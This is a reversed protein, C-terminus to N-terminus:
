GNPLPDGPRPAISIMLVPPQTAFRYLMLTIQLRRGQPSPHRPTGASLGCLEGSDETTIEYIDCAEEGSGASRIFDAPRLAQVLAWGRSCVQEESGM